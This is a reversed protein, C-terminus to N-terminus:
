AMEATERPEARVDNLFHRARAREPRGVVTVESGRRVAARDDAGASGSRSRCHTSQCDIVDIKHGISQLALCQFLAGYSVFRPFTIIGIRM